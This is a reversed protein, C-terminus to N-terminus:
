AVWGRDLAVAEVLAYLNDEAIITGWDDEWVIIHRDIHDGYHRHLFITYLAMLLDTHWELTAMGFVDYRCQWV